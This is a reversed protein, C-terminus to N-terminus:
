NWYKMFKRSPDGWKTDLAEMFCGINEPRELFRSEGLKRLEPVLGYYKKRNKWNLLVDVKEALDDSNKFKLFDPADEYTVM